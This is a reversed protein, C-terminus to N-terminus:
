QVGKLVTDDVFTVNFPDNKYLDKKGFLTKKYWRTKWGLAQLTQLQLSYASVVAQENTVNIPSERIEVNNDLSNNFPAAHPATILLVTMTSKWSGPTAKSVVFAAGFGLLAALAFWYWNRLIAPLILKKSFSKGTHLGAPQPHKNQDM